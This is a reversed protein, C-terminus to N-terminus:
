PVLESTMTAGGMTALTATMKVPKRSDKAIWVSGREAGTEETYLTLKWVDFEGAPVTVKESGIVKAQLAVAKQKQLDLVRFSTAYGEALPLCGLVFAAGPGDAFLPGGTEVSIPKAAGNISMSGSAKNDKVEITVTVPGQKVDRKLLALSARDLAGVDTVEGAPTLSVETVRWGGGEEAITTSQKLDIAREGLKVKVQYNYKGPTLAAVVKAGTVGKSDLKKSLVVTKPDVTIEQLRKAVEPTAGEQFRSDLHKALFREIATFMALNNVPRAFGHGEDPALLYEVPFGRDRLAIVIQEAEIKTVRPDNAGQIVLLPTKIKNASFLPSQRKLQEKGEPTNPDGMRKYFLRRIPEWYAPISELLTFLNSPGVIDVAAAYVDPTFTVGALTAYGGYSGGLIGVRKPNAVGKAVLHKVGWTVDDQMKQGWELNGADLFKKGYGTSGRFNPSLVAYGRNALFQHLGNYGWADRGWPGGHPVVVMPLGKAPVGKPLTLYAPIELGDSSKYRIAQMPALLASDLKPRVRYQLTLAKTKRNFLYSAGPETDSNAGVLWLQEDKTQSALGIEKGSLKSQLLKFDAELAKDKFYRRTKDDTYSTMLLEDTLDSFLPSGFDVRKLPDSEAVEVKGTAPDLLALVILDGVGKNTQMWVRRNDKHYRFPQCTEFVDCSYIKKLGDPDVRLVETDGNEASRTALRLQDKTDFIWVTVRDENKRLLTREGTSIRIRYLDHWAKDRDNLGAYLIDPDSKPVAYIVARVKQADTLNRAPPIKGPEAKAPDVAFIHFNEDGASDQAYLLYKGDRSWSYGRIPRKAEATVPRAASFAEATTKVWINRTGEYPKLFAIFKGDPSLRAQSIEPDGFFLDRDILPPPAALCAAAGLLFPLLAKM